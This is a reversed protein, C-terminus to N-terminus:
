PRWYAPRGYYDYLREEFERNIPNSPDFEPAKRIRERSVDFRVRRDAWRIGAIWEPATLVKKGPLWNKTDVIVYRLHWSGDEVIFDEIHGIEGDNAEVRYGEVERTSRLNPDAGDVDLDMADPKRIRPLGAPQPASAWYAPVGYHAFMNQELQRSVPQDTGIEPGAKIQEATLEVRVEGNTGIEKLVSPPLLVKRDPLWTGTDAVLYRVVWSRDDFLLDKVSGLRKDRARLAYGRLHKVSRKPKPAANISVEAM